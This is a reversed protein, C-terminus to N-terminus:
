PTQTNTHLLVVQGALGAEVGGEPVIYRTGDSRRKPDMEKLQGNSQAVTDLRWLQYHLSKGQKALIYVDRAGAYPHPSGSNTALHLWPLTPDPQTHDKCVSDSFMEGQATYSRKLATEVITEMDVRLVPQRLHAAMWLAVLGCRSQRQSLLLRVEAYDGEVPKRGEAIAQYLKKKTPQVDKPPPPPPPPPAPPMPLEM